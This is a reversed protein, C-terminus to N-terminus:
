GALAEMAKERVDRSLARRLLLCMERGTEWEEAMEAQSKEWQRARRVEMRAAARPVPGVPGEGYTGCQVKVLM